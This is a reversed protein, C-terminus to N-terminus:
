INSNFREGSTNEGRTTVVGVGAGGVVVVVVAAGGCVVVVAAGVVEVNVSVVM